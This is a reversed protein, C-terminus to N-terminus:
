DPAIGDITILQVGARSLTAFLVRDPATFAGVTGTYDWAHPHEIRKVLRVGARTIRLVAVGTPVTPYVATIEDASPSLVIQSEGVARPLREASAVVNGATDLLTVFGHNDASGLVVFRDLGPAYRVDYEYGENLRQPLALRRTVRGDLDILAGRLSRKGFPDSEISGDFKRVILQIHISGRRKV